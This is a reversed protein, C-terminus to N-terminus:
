KEPPFWEPPLQDRCLAIRAFDKTTILTEHARPCYGKFVPAPKKTLNTNSPIVLRGSLGCECRYSFWSGASPMKPSLPFAHSQLEFTIARPQRLPSTSFRFSRQDSGNEAM